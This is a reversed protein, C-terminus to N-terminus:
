SYRLTQSTSGDETPALGADVRKMMAKWATTDVEEYWLSDTYLGSTPCMCSYIATETDMGRMSQALSIIDTVGMDTNVCGALSGVCSALTVTDSSLIQKAVAKVVLRQHASRYVDGDGVNDFAHRARCLLLAQDCNLLQYGADLGGELEPDYFTVPVDVYVGGLTDIVAGFDEFDLEVYHSIDVGALKSVTKIALEPGGLSYASNIKARSSGGAASLDVMTDRHISILTVQKQGPDIRALMMSDSTNGGNGDTLRDANMDVGLVLAYFPDEPAAADVPVLADRTAQSINSSLKGQINQVYAFAAAAGGLLLVVVVTLTVIVARKRRARKRRKQAYGQQARRRSYDVVNGNPALANATGEAAQGGSRRQAPQSQRSVSRSSGGRNSSGENSYGRGTYEMKSYDRGSPSRRRSSQGQARYSYSGSGGRTGGSRNQSSNYRRDNNNQKRDRVM